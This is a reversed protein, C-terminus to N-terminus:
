GACWSACPYHFHSVPQFASGFLLSGRCALDRFECLKCGALHTEVLCPHWYYRVADNWLLVLAILFCFPTVHYQSLIPYSVSFLIKLSSKEMLLCNLLFPLFFWCIISCAAINIPVVKRSPLSIFISPFFHKSGPIGGGLILGIFRILSTYPLAHAM